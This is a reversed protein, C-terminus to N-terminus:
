IKILGAIGEALSQKPVSASPQPVGTGGKVADGFLYASEPDGAMLKIVEAVPKDGIALKGDSTRVVSPALLNALHKLNKPRLPAATEIIHNRITESEAVLRAKNLEAEFNAAAETKAAAEAKIQELTKSMDAIKTQSETLSGKWSEVTQNTKMEWDAKHKAVVGNVFDNFAPDNKLEELNFVM